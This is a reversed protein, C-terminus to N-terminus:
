DFASGAPAAALIRELRGLDPEQHPLSFLVPGLREGLPAVAALFAAVRDEVGDLDRRHTIGLHAKPAFRFHAPVADVWRALATPTPLRRYTAHAEVTDFVSAYVGLMRAPSTGEPYFPGVWSPYSWGSTGVRVQAM